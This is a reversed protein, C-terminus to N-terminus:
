ARSQEDREAAAYTVMVWDCRGVEACNPGSVVPRLERLLRDARLENIKKHM